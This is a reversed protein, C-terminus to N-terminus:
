GSHTVFSGLLFFFFVEWHDWILTNKFAEKGEARIILYNPLLTTM